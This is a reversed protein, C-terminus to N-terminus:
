GHNSRRALFLRVSEKPKLTQASEEQAPGGVLSVVRRQNLYHMIKLPILFPRGLLMEDNRGSRNLITLYDIERVILLAPM